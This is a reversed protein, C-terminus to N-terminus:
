YRHILRLLFARRWDTEGSAHIETLYNFTVTIPVSELILNKVRSTAKDLDKSTLRVLREIFVSKGSGPAGVSGCLANQGKSSNFQIENSSWNDIRSELYDFYSQLSEEREILYDM